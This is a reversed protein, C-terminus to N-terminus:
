SASRSCPACLIRAEDPGTVLYATGYAGCRGCRNKDLLENCAPAYTIDVSAADEPEDERCVSFLERAESPSLECRPPAWTVDVSTDTPTREIQDSTVLQGREIPKAARMTTVHPRCSDCLGDEDGLRSGCSRCEPPLQPAGLRKMATRTLPVSMSAALYPAGLVARDVAADVRRAIERDIDGALELLARSATVSTRSTPSGEVWVRYSRVPRFQDDHIRAGLAIGAGVARGLVALAECADERNEAIEIDLLRALVGAASDAPVQHLEGRPGPTIFTVVSSSPDVAHDVGVRVSIGPSPGKWVTVMERETVSRLWPVLGVLARGVELVRARWLAVAAERTPAWATVGHGAAQHGIELGAAVAASAYAACAEGCRKAEDYDYRAAAAIADEAERLSLATLYLAGDSGNPDPSRGVHEPELFRHECGFAYDRTASGGCDLCTCGVAMGDHDAMM